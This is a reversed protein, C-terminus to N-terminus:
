SFCQMKLVTNKNQLFNSHDCEEVFFIYRADKLGFSLMM